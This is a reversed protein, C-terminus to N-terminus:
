AADSSRLAGVLSGALAGGLIYWPGPVTREIVIAAAMGTLLPAIDSTGRVLGIAMSAFFAALMFDIGFTRPDGLAQGFIYGVATAGIWVFWLVTGSGLLFAADDRGEAHERLALAWNADGMVFLSPYSQWAPLGAFWPRLAAGLLLYRANVTLVTLCVALLPLPDSWAQLVAMQAGGANVWGSLAMAELLSVGVTSAMVGFAVGYMVVGPALTRAGVIGARFGQLTFPPKPSPSLAAPEPPPLM